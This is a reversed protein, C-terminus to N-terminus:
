YRCRPQKRNRGRSLHKLEPREGNRSAIATPIGMRLDQTRLRWAAQEPKDCSPVDTMPVRATTNHQTTENRYAVFLRGCGTHVPETPTQIVRTCHNDDSPWPLPADMSGKMDVNERSVADPTSGSPNSGLADEKCLLCEEASSHARAKVIRLHRDPTHRPTDGAHCATILQITTSYTSIM